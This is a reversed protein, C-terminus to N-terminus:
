AFRAHKLDLSLIIIASRSLTKELDTYPCIAIHSVLDRPEILHTEDELSDYYLRAIDAGSGGIISNNFYPDHLADEGDLPQFARVIIM